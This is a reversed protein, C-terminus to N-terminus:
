LLLVCVVVFTRDRGVVVAFLCARAVLVVCVFLCVFFCVLLVVRFCM